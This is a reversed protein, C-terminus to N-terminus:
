KKVYQLKGVVPACPDERLKKVETRLQAKLRHKTLYVYGANVHFAKAIRGTPWRKFVALDFIQFQKAPVNQKVRELAADALNEEWDAEWNQAISDVGPPQTVLPGLWDASIGTSSGIQRRRRKRLHDQIRWTTTTRLWGKFSGRSPDYEFNRIAKCVSILTDQVVEEAETANLGASSATKYILKWYTDFFCQWSATDDWNRLRNLLSQRTPILDDNANM